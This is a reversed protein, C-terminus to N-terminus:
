IEYSGGGVAIKRQNIIQEPDKLWEGPKSKERKFFIRM